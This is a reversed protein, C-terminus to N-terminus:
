TKKMSNYNESLERLMKIVMKKLGIDPLNSTEMENVEIKPSKEQEKMQPM